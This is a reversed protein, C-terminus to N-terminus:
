NDPNSYNINVKYIPRYISGSVNNRGLWGPTCYSIYIQDKSIEKIKFESITSWDTKCNSDNQEFKRIEAESSPWRNNENYFKNCSYNLNFFPESISACGVIFLNLIIIYIFKM